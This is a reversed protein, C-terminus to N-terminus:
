QIGEKTLDHANAQELMAHAPFTETVARVKDGEFKKLNEIYTKSTEDLADRESIKNSTHREYFSDGGLDKENVFGRSRM